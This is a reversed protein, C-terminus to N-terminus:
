KLGKLFGDYAPKKEFDKNFLLPYEKPHWWDTLWTAKDSVGWTTIAFKQGQPLAEFAEVINQYADAQLKQEAPSFIYNDSRNVNVKLDLESLHILLGTAAMDNLGSKITNLNTNVSYHFQDGLGDIPYGDKNFRTVMEKIHHRKSKAVVVSYDNYFLKVDPDANRAYQFCRGYFAIPDNFTEYVPCDESRLTGDDNFIENAVDWSKVRGSYREVVTEIYTKVMTEFTASDYKAKKFWNPFSKYWVLAHGHVEMGNEAAFGVLADAKEWNYEGDGSWITAMKMEFEGTIQSFHEIVTASYQGNLDTTKVAAGIGFGAKEKLTVENVPDEEQKEPVIGNGEDSSCAAFCFALILFAPLLLKSFKM